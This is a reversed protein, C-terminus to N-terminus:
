SVCPDTMEASVLLEYSFNLTKRRSQRGFSGMAWSSAFAKYVFVVEISVNRFSFTSIQHLWQGLLCM